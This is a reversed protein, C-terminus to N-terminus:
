PVSYSLYYGMPIKLLLGGQANHISNCYGPPSNNSHSGYQLHSGASPSLLPIGASPLVLVLQVIHQEVYCLQSM